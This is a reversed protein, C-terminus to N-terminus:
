AELRARGTALETLDHTPSVVAYELGRAPWHVCFTPHPYRDNPLAVHLFDRGPYWIAQGHLLAGGDRGAAAAHRLQEFLALAADGAAPVIDVAQACLHQSTASGGVARNLASNRYGSLIRIPAGLAGRLPELLDDALTKAFGVFRTPVPVVLAPYAASVAFEALRFHASLRM